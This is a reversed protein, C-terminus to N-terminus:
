RRRDSGSSVGSHNLSQSVCGALEPPGSNAFTSPTRLSVAIMSPVPSRVELTASGMDSHFSKARSEAAQRQRPACARSGVRGAAGAIALHMPAM